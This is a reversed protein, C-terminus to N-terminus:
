RASASTSQPRHFLYLTHSSEAVALSRGSDSFGCARLVEVECIKVCGRCRDEMWVSDSRPCLVVSAEPWDPCVIEVSWGALPAAASAGAHASVTRTTPRPLGRGTAGILGLTEVKM